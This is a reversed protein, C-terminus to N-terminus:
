KVVIEDTFVWGNAPNDAQVRIYRASQMAGKYGLTVFDLYHKTIHQQTSSYIETFNKNDSSISIILHRPIYIDPAANQIFEMQVSTFTKMKGLDVTVDMCYGKDGIFGQWNSAVHSWGGLKGDTLTTAGSSPYHDNWPANYTVKANLAKHKISTLSEKREGQEKSLDFANVGSTRLWSTEALAYDHFKAYSPRMDGKLGIEGIALIRPYIMFEAREPTEVYESWLCAELGKVHKQEEKTLNAKPNFSYMKKLSLYDVPGSKRLEPADPSHNIYCNSTPAQIVNFGQRIALKAYDSNRWVEITKPNGKICSPIPDLDCLEDWGILSRGNANLFSDIRDILYTQLGSVKILHLDNMKKKCLACHSWAKMEAEDGGVHIYKSPFIDMVEKLVNTLFIYTHENGPCLDPSNILSGTSDDVCKLEPYAALVEDSHGPMEIEPVITIGKGAAYKVLDKMQEQTYYGGYVHPADERTYDRKGNEHWKDWNSEPRWAALETLRPYAHIQLRWGGNDTLHLHLVNIGYKSLYNIQKKLSEYPMFHRSVDIMLGRWEYAPQSEKKAASVPLTNLLALFVNGLLFYFKLKRM